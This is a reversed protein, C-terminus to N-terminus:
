YRVTLRDITSNKVPYSLTGSSMKMVLVLRDEDAERLQGRRVRGDVTTVEILRNLHKPADEVHIAHFSPATESKSETVALTERAPPLPSEAVPEDSDHQQPANESVVRRQSGWEIEDLAVQTGNISVSLGLMAIVDDPKYYQLNELQLEDNPVLHVALSGGNHMFKKYAKIALKPFTAGLSESLMEVHRDVYSEVGSDRQLACYKNRLQYYGSDRYNLRIRPLETTGLQKGRAKLSGDFELNIDADYLRDVATNIRFSTRNAKKDYESSLAIDAVMQGFGMRRYDDITFMDRDGCGLADPSTLLSTMSDAQTVAAAGQLQELMSFLQSDIDLHIHQLALELREPLEGSKLSSDASLFYGIHPARLRLQEILFEDETMTPRITIHDLGVADGLPSIHVAGYAIKAFPAAAGIMEEAQSKTEYWLYAMATGYALSPALILLFLKRM